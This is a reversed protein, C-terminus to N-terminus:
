YITQLVSKLSNIAYKSLWLVLSPVSLTGQWNNQSWGLPPYYIVKEKWIQDAM